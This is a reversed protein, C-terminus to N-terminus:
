MRQDEHCCVSQATHVDTSTAANITSYACNEQVEIRKVDCSMGYVPNVSVPIDQSPVAAAEAYLMCAQSRPNIPFIGYLPNYEHNPEFDHQM